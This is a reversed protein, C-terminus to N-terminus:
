RSRFVLECSGVGIRDGDMLPRETIVEGNVLTGNESHLDVLMYSGLRPMIAAHQRSVAEGELRISNESGRGLSVRDAGLMFEEVAEGSENLLLLRARRIIVTMEGADESAPGVTSIAGGFTASPPSLMTPADSMSPTVFPPIVHVDTPEDDDHDDEQDNSAALPPPEVPQITTKDDGFNTNTDTDAAVEGDNDLEPEDVADGAAPAIATNEAPQEAPAADREVAEEAPAEDVTAPEPGSAGEPEAEPTVQPEPTVDPSSESAVELDAESDFVALFADRVTVIAELRERRTALVRDAQTSREQHEAEDFEALAFRFEVEEKELEAQRLAAESDNHLQRLRVWELRAAAELPRATEDLTARRTRYDSEVRSFVAASVKDRMEEMKALRDDLVLRERRLGALSQIPATDIRELEDSM